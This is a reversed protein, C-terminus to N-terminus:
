ICFYIAKCVERQRTYLLRLEFAIKWSVCDPKQHQHSAANSGNSENGNHNSNSNNAGHNNKIHKNNHSNTNHSSSSSSTNAAASRSTATPLHLFPFANRFTHWWVFDEEALRCVYVFHSLVFLITKKICVYVSQHLIPAAHM